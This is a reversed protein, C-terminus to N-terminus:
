FCIAFVDKRPQTENWAAHVIEWEMDHYVLFAQFITMLVNGDGKKEHKSWISLEYGNAHPSLLEAHNGMKNHKIYYLLQCGYQTPTKRTDKQNKHRFITALEISLSKPTSITVAHISGLMLKRYENTRSANQFFLWRNQWVINSAIKTCVFACKATWGDMCEMQEAYLQNCHKLRWAELTCM